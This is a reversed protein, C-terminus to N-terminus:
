RDDDSVEEVIYSVEENDNFGLKSEVLRIDPCSNFDNSEEYQVSYCSECLEDSLDIMLKGVSHDIPIPTEIDDVFQYSQSSKSEDFSYDEMASEVVPFTSKVFDQACYLISILETIQISVIYISVNVRQAEALRNHFEKLQIAQELELDAALKEALLKGTLIQANPGQAQSSSINMNGEEVMGKNNRWQEVAKM